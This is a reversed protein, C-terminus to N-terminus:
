APLPQGTGLHGVKGIIDIPVEQIGALRNIRHLFYRVKTDGLEFCLEALDLNIQGSFLERVIAEAARARARYILDISQLVEDLKASLEGDGTLRAILPVVARFNMPAVAHTHTIWARVTAPARPQGAAALKQSFQSQENHELSVHRKLATKWLGARSRVHSPNAMYQDARADVLDRDGGASFALVMGPELSTVSRFLLREAEGRALASEDLAESRPSLVIVKGTPPLFAYSNADDFLVLQAKASPRGARTQAMSQRLSEIARAELQEIEGDDSQMPEPLVVSTPSAIRQSIQHRWLTPVGSSRPLQEALDRLTESTKKELQREWGRGAAVLNGFWRCEFPLLLLDLRFGYGNNDLERMAMRDLWGPVIVRDYPGVQRLTEINLWRFSAFNARAAAVASSAEAIPASRCVVAVTEDSEVEDAIQALAGERDFSPPAQKLFPMFLEYVREAQTDYSRLVSAQAAIRRALGALEKDSDKPRLPHSISRQLFASLQLDLADAEPQGSGGSTARERMCDPLAELFENRVDRIVKSVIWHDTSRIISREVADATSAPRKPRLPPVEVDQDELYWAINGNKILDASAEREHLEGFICFSPRAVSGLANLSSLLARGPRAGDVIIHWARVHDPPERILDLATDVDSCAYIAPTDTVSGTLDDSRNRATIYRLGFLAAVSSGLPKLSSIYLDLKQRSGVLLICNHRALKRRPSGTLHILPDPRGEKLWKLIDNGVSLQSHGNASRAMYPLVRNVDVTISGDHRVGIRYKRTQGFDRTGEYTAKFVKVGDSITIPQGVPWTIVDQSAAAAEQRLAHIAAMVACLLPQAASERLVLLSPAPREFLCYLCASAVYQSYRDLTSPEHAWVALDSLFPWRQILVELLPLCRTQNEVVAYAWEIVYVDDVLGLFDQSDPVVDPIDALYLLASRAIKSNSGTRSAAAFLAEVKDMLRALSADSVLVHLNNLHREIRKRLLNADFHCDCDYGALRAEIRSLEDTSLSSRLSAPGLREVIRQVTSELVWNLDQVDAETLRGASVRKELFYLAAAAIAGVPDPKMCLRFQSAVWVWQRIQRKPFGPTGFAHILSRSLGPIYESPDSCHAECVKELAAIESGLAEVRSQTPYWYQV